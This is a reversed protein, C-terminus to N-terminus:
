YNLFLILGNPKLSVRRSMLLRLSVPKDWTSKSCCGNADDASEEQKISEDVKFFSPMVVKYDSSPCM